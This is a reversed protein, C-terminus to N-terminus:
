DALSLEDLSKATLVARALQRLKDGPMQIVRQRIAENLPPFKAELLDLLILRQGEVLGQERGQERGEETWTKAM